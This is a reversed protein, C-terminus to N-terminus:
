PAFDGREHDNGYLPLAPTIWQLFAARCIVGTGYPMATRGQENSPAQAAITLTISDRVRRLTVNNRIRGGIRPTEPRRRALRSILLLFGEM